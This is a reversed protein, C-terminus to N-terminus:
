VGERKTRGGYTPTKTHCPVCLTRGNSLDFRLEPFYAFPKIHDAHLKVGLDGCSQCTYNDRKYVASRWEKYERSDRILRAEEGYNPGRRSLGFCRMSCFFGFGNTKQSGSVGFSDGCQRCSRVEVGITTKYTGWCRRSCFRGGGRGVVSPWALFECSCIECNRNVSKRWIRKTSNSPAQSM